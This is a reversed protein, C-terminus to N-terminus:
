QIQYASRKKVIITQNGLIAYSSNSGYWITFIDGESHSAVHVMFEQTFDLFAEKM